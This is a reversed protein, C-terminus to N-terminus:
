LIHTSHTNKPTSKSAWSKGSTISPRPIMNFFLLDACLRRSIFKASACLKFVFIHLVRLNPSAYTLVPQIYTKYLNIKGKLFSVVENTIEHSVLIAWVECHKIWNLRHGLIFGFYHVRIIYDIKVNQPMFESFQRKTKISMVLSKTKDVSIKIRCM